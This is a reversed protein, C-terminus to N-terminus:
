SSGGKSTEIPSLLSSPFFGILVVVAMFILGASISFTTSILVVIPGFIFAMLHLWGMYYQWMFAPFNHPTTDALVTAWATFNFGSFFGLIISAFILTVRNQVFFWPIVSVAAGILSFYYGRKHGIKDIVKGMGISSFATALGFPVVTFWTNYIKGAPNPTVINATLQSLFGRAPDLTYIICGLFAMGVWTLVMKNTFTLSISEKNLVREETVPPENIFFVPIPILAYPIFLWFATQWGFVVQVSLTLLTSVTYGIARAGWGTGMGLGHWDTPAVDLLLADMGADLIADGAMLIILAPLVGLWLREASKLLLIGILELGIAVALFPRRRWRNFSPSVDMGLGILFKFHWPIYALALIIALTVNGVAAGFKFPVYISMLLVISRILGESLYGAFYSGIVLKPDWWQEYSADM